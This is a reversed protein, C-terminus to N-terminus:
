TDGIDGTMTRPPIHLQDHLLIWFLLCELLSFFVTTRICLKHLESDWRPIVPIIRSYMLFTQGPTQSFQFFLDLEGV